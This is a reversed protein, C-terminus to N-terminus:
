KWFGLYSEYFSTYIGGLIPESKTGVRRTPICIKYATAMTTANGNKNYDDNGMTGNGDNNDDDGTTGDGDDDDTMMTTM